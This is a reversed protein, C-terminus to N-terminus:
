LLSKKKWVNRTEEERASRISGMCHIRLICARRPAVAPRAAADDMGPAGDYMAAGPNGVETNEYSHAGM